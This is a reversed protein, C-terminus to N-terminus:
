YVCCQLHTSSLHLVIKVVHPTLPASSWISDINFASASTLYVWCPWPLFCSFASRFNIICYAKLHYCIWPIYSVHALPFMFVVLYSLTHNSILLGERQQSWLGGLVMYSRHVCYINDVWLHYKLFGLFIKVDIQSIASSASKPLPSDVFTSEGGHFMFRSKWIM